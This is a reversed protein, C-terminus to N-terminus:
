VEAILIYQPVCCPQVDCGKRVSCLTVTFTRKLSFCPSNQRSVKESINEEAFFQGWKQARIKGVHEPINNDRKGPCRALLNSERQGGICACPLPNDTCVLACLPWLAVQRRRLMLSQRLSRHYGTAM